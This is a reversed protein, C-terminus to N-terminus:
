DYKEITPKELICIKEFDVMNELRFNYIGSRWIKSEIKLYVKYVLELKVYERVVSIGLFDKSSYIKEKV